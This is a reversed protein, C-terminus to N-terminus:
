KVNLLVQKGHAKIFDEFKDAGLEDYVQEQLEDSLTNTNLIWVPSISNEIEWWDGNQNAVYIAM